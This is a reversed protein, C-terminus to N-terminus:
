AVAGEARGNVLWEDLLAEEGLSLEQQADGFLTAVYQRFASALSSATDANAFQHGAIMMTEIISSIASESIDPDNRACLNHVQEVALTFNFENESLYRALNAFVRAYQKTSLIPAGTIANIHLAFTALEEPM